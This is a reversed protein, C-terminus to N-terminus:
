DLSFVVDATATERRRLIEHRISVTPKLTLGASKYAAHVAPASKKIFEDPYAIDFMDGRKLKWNKMLKAAKDQKLGSFVVEGMRYQPGEVVELKATVALAPEDPEICTKVNVDLFGERMYAKRVNELGSGLATEDAAAGVPLRLIDGLRATSFVTSGSWEAEGWTFVPGEDVPITVSVCAGGEPGTALRVQPASFSARLRGRSRYVPTLSLRTFAGLGNRSYGRGVLGVCARDLEGEMVPSAGPFEVRCVPTELGKVSFSYCRRGTTFDVAFLASVTGDVGKEKLLGALTERVVAVLKGSEDVLGEFFPCEKQVAARIEGDSLWVLNDYLVPVLAPNERASFSVAVKGKQVTAKGNVEVFLGWRSFRSAARDVDAQTVVDGVRIGAVSLFLEAPYRELGTVGVRAVAAKPKAAPKKRTAAAGTTAAQFLSAILLATLTFVSRRLAPSHM